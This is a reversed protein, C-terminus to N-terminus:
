RDSPPSPLPMWHTARHINNFGRWEYGVEQEKRYLGGEVPVYRDYMSPDYRGVEYEGDVCVVVFWSGDKPATEIPRWGVAEGDDAPREALYADALLERDSDLMAQALDSVDCTLGTPLRGAFDRCHAEYVSTFGNNEDAEYRRLREAAARLKDSM